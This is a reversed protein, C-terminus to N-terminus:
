NLAPSILEIKEDLEKVANVLLAVVADYRVFKIGNIESVADPLVGELDQAMIGGNRNDPSNFKYNYSHGTLKAVKDLASNIPKVNEKIRADSYMAAIQMAMQIDGGTGGTPSYDGLFGGGGTGSSGGLFGGTAKSMISGLGPLFQAAGPGKDQSLYDMQPASGQLSNLVNIWPNNYPQQTQWKQFPEQMQEGTIGREMAGYGLINSLMDMGQGGVQGAQGLVQGPLGALNMAQNVGTQQRNLQNQQGQFLYPYAQAGMGMSLRGGERALARDLGGADATGAKAVYREKLAPIIDRNFMDMALDRGPQLGETVTSPDFSQMVDRLGQEAMGMSRGPASPDAGALVDGFYQQGGSAIPTLGQAIDFGMQQLNSQGPVMPGPYATVGGMQPQLWETFQNYMDRYNTRAYPDVAKISSGGGGLYCRQNNWLSYKNVQQDLKDAWTEMLNPNNAQKRPNM